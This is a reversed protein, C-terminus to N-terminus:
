RRSFTKMRALIEKERALYNMEVVISNKVGGVPCSNVWTPLLDSFELACEADEYNDFLVLVWKKKNGEGYKFVVESTDVKLDLLWKLLPGKGFNNLREWSLKLATCKKKQNM